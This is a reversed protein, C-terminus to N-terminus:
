WKLQWLLPTPMLKLVWEQQAQQPGLLLPVADERLTLAVGKELEEEKSQGKGM